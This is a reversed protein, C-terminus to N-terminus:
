LNYIHLGFTVQQGNFCVEKKNDDLISIKFQTITNEKIPTYIPNDFYKTFSEGFKKSDPIPIAVLIAGNLTIYLNKTWFFESYKPSMSNGVIETTTEFGLLKANSQMIFVKIDKGIAFHLKGDTQSPFIEFDTIGSKKIVKTYSAINYLGDPIEVIKNQSKTSYFFRNNRLSESINYFGINMNIYKLAIKATGNRNNVVEDLVHIFNEPHISQIYYFSKDM